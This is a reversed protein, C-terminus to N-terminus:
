NGSSCSHYHRYGVIQFIGHIDERDFPTIFSRNLQDYIQQTIEDGHHEIDKIRKIYKSRKEEDEANLLKKLSICATILNQADNEFLPFFSDDKPVFFKLFKDFNM